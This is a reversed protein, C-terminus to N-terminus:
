KKPKSFGSEIEELTKGKTEPLLKISFVFYILSFISIMLFLSGYGLWAGIVLFKSVFITGVIVSCLGGIVIGISRIATPLMEAIIVYVVGTPGFALFGIGVLMLVLCAWGTMETKPAIWVTLALILMCIFYGFTGIRLLKKRGLKDVFMITGITMLFNVASLLITGFIAMFDSQVGCAKLLIVSTQFIANIGLLQTLVFVGTVLLIPKIFKFILGFSGAWNIQDRALLANVEKQVDEPKMNKNIARVIQEAEVIRGKMALWRPSRPLFFAFIFLLVPIFLIVNFMPQWNSSGVMKLNVISAILMGATWSLQFTTIMRGRNKAPAIESLYVPFTVTGMIVATGQIFRGWYLMEYTHANTFLLIGVIYLLLNIIIMIKREFCDNMVLIFKAFVGGFLILGMITSIQNTSLSFEKVITPAAGAIVSLAYGCILGGLSFFVIIFAPSETLKKM